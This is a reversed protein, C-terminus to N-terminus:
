EALETAVKENNLLARTRRYDATIKWAFPMSLILLGLVIVTIAWLPFELVATAHSVGECDQVAAVWVTNMGCEDKTKALLIYEGTAALDRTVSGRLYPTYPRQSKRLWQTAATHMEVNLNEPPSIPKLVASYGDGGGCLFQTTVIRYTRRRSLPEWVKTAGNWIEVSTLRTEFLSTNRYSNYTYRAGATQLFRGTNPYVTVDTGNPPAMNVSFNFMAWVDAGWMELVCLQDAFPVSTFLSSMKLKGTPWGNRMAGGNYVALDPPTPTVDYMVQTWFTGQECEQIRCTQNTATSAPM